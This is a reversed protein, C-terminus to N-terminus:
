CGHIARHSELNTRLMNCDLRMAQIQFRALEYQAFDGCEVAETLRRKALGLDRVAAALQDLLEIRTPCVDSARSLM